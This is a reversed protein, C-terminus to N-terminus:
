KFSMKEKWLFKGFDMLKELPPTQILEFSAHISKEIFLDTKEFSPSSDDIWFKLSALFQFWALESIGKEQIKQIKEEPIKFYEIPLEQIMSKFATRLTKLKKLNSVEFKNTGLLHLILSRNATLQEFYTFYFSILKTKADYNEFNESKQLLLITSDFLNTFVSQEIQEFSSYHVYFESEEIKLKKCFAFVNKPREGESLLFDVYKKFITKQEMVKPKKNIKM